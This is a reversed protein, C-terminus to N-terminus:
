PSEFRAVAHSELALDRSFVLAELTSTRGVVVQVRTEGNRGDAGICTGDALVPAATGVVEWKRATGSAPVHAICVSRGAKDPALEGDSSAITLNGVRPLWADRPLSATIPLTAGFRAGERAAQAVSLKRSYALGGTMMGLLLMMFVPLVIAFEVLAAGSERSSARLLGLRRM